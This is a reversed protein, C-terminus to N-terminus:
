FGVWSHLSGDEEVRGFTPPSHLVANLMDRQWKSYKTMGKSMILVRATESAKTLAAGEVYQM